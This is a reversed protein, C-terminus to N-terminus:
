PLHILNSNTIDLLIEMKFRVFFVMLLMHKPIGTRNNTKKHHYNYRICELIFLIWNKKNLEM